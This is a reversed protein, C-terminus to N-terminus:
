NEGMGVAPFIDGIKQLEGNKENHVSTLITHLIDQRIDNLQTMQNLQLKFSINFLVESFFLRLFVMFVNSVSESIIRDKCGSDGGGYYSGIHHMAFVGCDVDNHVTQWDMVLRQPLISVYGM